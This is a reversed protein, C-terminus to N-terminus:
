DLYAAAIIMYLLKIKLAIASYNLENTFVIPFGLFKILKSFFISQRM